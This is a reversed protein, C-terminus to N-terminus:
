YPCAIAFLHDGDPLPRPDASAPATGLGLLGLTAVATLALIIRRM